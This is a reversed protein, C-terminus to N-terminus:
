LSLYVKVFDLHTFADSLEQIKTIKLHPIVFYELVGEFWREAQYLNQCCYADTHARTHQTVLM